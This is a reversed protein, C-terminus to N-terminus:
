PPTTGCNIPQGVRQRLPDAHLRLGYGASIVVGHGRRTLLMRRPPAVGPPDGSWRGFVAGNGGRIRLGASPERVSSRAEGKEPDVM